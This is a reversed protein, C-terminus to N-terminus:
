GDRWADGRVRLSTLLARAESDDPVRSLFERLLREAEPRKGAAALRRSKVMFAWGRRPDLSMARELFRDAARDAGLRGSDIALMTYADAYRPDLRTARWAQVASRLTQGQRLAFWALCGRAWASNSDMRAAKRYLRLARREAGVQDNLLGLEIWGAAGKPERDLAMRLVSRADDPAAESRADAIGVAARQSNPYRGALVLLQAVDPLDAKWAPHVRPQWGFECSARDGFVQVDALGFSMGLLSRIEIEVSNIRRRDFALFIPKM